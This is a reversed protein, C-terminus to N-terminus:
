LHSINAENQIPKWIKGEQQRTLRWQLHKRGADSNQWIEQKRQIEVQRVAQAVKSAELMKKNHARHVLKRYTWQHLEQLSNAKTAGGGHRTHKFYGKSLPNEGDRANVM